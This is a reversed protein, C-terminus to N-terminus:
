ERALVFQIGSSTEDIVMKGDSMTFQLPVDSKDSKANITCAEFDFYVVFQNYDGDGTPQFMYCTDGIDFYFLENDLIEAQRVVELQADTATGDLSHLEAVKWTGFYEPDVPNSTQNAETQPETEKQEETEVQQETPQITPEANGGQNAAGGGNKSGCAALTVVM